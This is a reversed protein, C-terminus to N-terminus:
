GSQDIPQSNIPRQWLVSWPVFLLWALLPAVVSGLEGIPLSVYAAMGTIFAVFYWRRYVLMQGLLPLLLVGDYARTYPTIILVAALWASWWAPTLKCQHWAWLGMTALVLLRMLHALWLPAQWLLM